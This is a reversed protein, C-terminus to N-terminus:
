NLEEALSHTTKALLVFLREIASQDSFARHGKFENIASALLESYDHGRSSLRLDGNISKLWRDMASLFDHKNSLRANSSLTAHVYRESDLRLASGERRLYKDLAVWKLSFALERDALRLAYLLKLNDFISEILSASDPVKARATKIVLDLVVEATIFHSDIGCFRTWRLRPSDELTEFWHDLDRDVLCKVRAEVALNGLERSLAVVRQKNGSTLGHAALLEAPVNVAGIDYFIAERSIGSFAETLVEKDFNGEVFVDTLQPELDYRALLEEISWRAHSIM